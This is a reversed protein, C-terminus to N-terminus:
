SPMSSKSVSLKTIALTRDIYTRLEDGSIETNEPDIHSGHKSLSAYEYINQLETITGIDLIEKTTGCKDKCESLFTGVPKSADYHSACLIELIAELYPRIAEIVKQRDGTKDKAYTELLRQRQAQVANFALSIDWDCINSGNGSHVVTLSQCQKKDVGRWINSLFGKKHSLIILQGVNKALERLREVTTRSRNDDFSSVPDDIVVTADALNENEELSSLFLALALTNRDSTSLTSGITPVNDSRPKISSISANDVMVTYSCSSGSSINKPALSRMTFRAGFLHLYRNVRNQLALFAEDRYAELQRTVQAKEMNANAKATKAQIYRNCLIATTPSYREKTVELRLLRNQISQVNAADVMEKKKKIKDNYADLETNITNILQLRSEYSRLVSSDFPIRELPAAQKAELAKVVVDLASKWDDVIAKTDISLPKLGYKAWVHGTERNTGVTREFTIQVDGSHTSRISNLIDEIDRKLNSYAESFYARYHEILSAGATEQGCFPCAKADDSMYAMGEAIWLEGRNGLSEIHKAVRDAAETNLDQLDRQLIAHITPEDFAPIGIKEFEQTNLITDADQIADLDMKAKEIETDIDPVEEIDCFEDMSIERRQEDSIPEAAKNMDRTYQAIDRGLKERDRSLKVGQKGLALYYMSKRHESGVELGSYVNDDIFVDDFVKVTLRKEEWHGDKFVVKPPDSNCELTIHQDNQTGFKRRRVIIAPDNTELSRLVEALTTKGTANEAYILVIRKLDRPVTANEFVGVNHLRIRRIMHM